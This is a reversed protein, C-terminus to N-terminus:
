VLEKAPELRRDLRALLAALERGRTVPDLTAAITARARAGLETCRDPDGLLRALSAAAAGTDPTAWRGTGAYHPTGGPIETLRYPVLEVADPPTFEMTGSYATTVVATGAAMAEAVTLGFGECRHLSLYVDATAMWARVEAPALYRDVVVIDARGDAAQLLRAHESPAAGANATKIVLTASGERPVAERYAAIAALPNKREMVSLHDFCFLVLPGDPLGLASRDTTITPLDVRVPPPAAHVPIAIGHRAATARIARATHESPALVLDVHEFADAHRAPLFETEWAWYGAVGLVHDARPLLSRVIATQDANVALLDCAYPNAEHSPPATALGHRTGPAHLHRPTTPVGVARLAHYVARGSEGVGSEAGLYGLLNVGPRGGPFGRAAIAAGVTTTRGTSVGGTSSNADAWAAFALGGDTAFAAPPEGPLAPRGPGLSWGLRIMASEEAVVAHRYRRRVTHDLERGRPTVAYGYRRADDPRAAAALADRYFAALARWAPDDGSYRPRSVYKSVTAPNGPDFGSFHFFTLPRGDVLVRPVGDAWEARPELDLAREHLNWYAVNLTPDRVVEIPFHAVALDMWRQDTFRHNAPDVIADRWLRSSWWDLLREGLDGPAVACFGLNFTGAAQIFVDPPELGDVPIPELCHPTLAAAAGPPPVACEALDGFVVVDPDLYCVAGGFRRQLFALAFPKLATSLETVDYMTAMRALEDAGVLDTAVVTDFAEDVGFGDLDDVVVVVFRQGPNTRALSQHLVRVRPLYNVAAITCLTVEARRDDEAM